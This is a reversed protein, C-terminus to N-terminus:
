KEEEPQLNLTELLSSRLHHLSNLEKDLLVLSQLQFETTSINAEVVQLTDRLVDQTEKTM